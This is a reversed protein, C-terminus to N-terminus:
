LGTTTAPFAEDSRQLVADIQEKCRIEDSKEHSLRGRHHVTDSLRVSVTGLGLLVTPFEGTALERNSRCSVIHSWNRRWEVWRPHRRAVEDFHRAVLTLKRSSAAWQQLREITAREGLPWDAFDEDCLWVERAGASALTEFAQHLAAHFEARSTILSGPETSM